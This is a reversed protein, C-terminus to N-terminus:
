SKEKTIKCEMLRRVAAAWGLMGFGYAYTQVAPNARGAQMLGSWMLPYPGEYYARLAGRFTDLRGQHRKAWIRQRTITRAFWPRRSGRLGDVRYCRGSWVKRLGVEMGASKEFRWPTQEDPYTEMIFQLVEILAGVNWLGPHLSFKYQFDDAVREIGWHEPGLNEGSSGQGQGWGLLGLYAAGHEKVFRPYHENLFVEHCQRLPPHDDLILYLCEYGREKLIEVAALLGGAWTRNEADAVALWGDKEDGSCGSLHIPPHQHWKRGIEGATFEALSRYRPFTPVLICTKMGGDYLPTRAAGRYATGEM